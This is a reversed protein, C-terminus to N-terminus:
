RDGSATRSVEEQLAPAVPQLSAYARNAYVLPAGPASLFVEEVSGLLIDHTGVSRCEVLRCDFAALPDALRPAGSAMATWRACGFKDNDAMPSRRSFADSIWSQDDRLVNVCFRGNALLAAASSSGRNVCILLTPKDGDASVPVMASVTIGARGSPGDTTVITVTAAACSMAELFLARLPLDNGTTVATRRQM